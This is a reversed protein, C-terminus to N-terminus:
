QYATCAYELLFTGRLLIKLTFFHDYIELNKETKQSLRSIKCNKCVTYFKRDFADSSGCM